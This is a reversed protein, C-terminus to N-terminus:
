HRQIDQIDFKQIRDRTENLYDMFKNYDDETLTTRYLRLATSMMAAGIAPTSYGDDIWKDIITFLDAYMVHLDQEAKDLDIM